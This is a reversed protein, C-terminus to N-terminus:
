LEVSSSCRSLDSGPRSSAQWSNFRKTMISTRDADERYQCFRITPRVLGSIKKRMRKQLLEDVRDVDKHDSEDLTPHVIVEVRGQEVVLGHRLLEVVEAKLALPLKELVQRAPSCRGLPRGFAHHGLCLVDEVDVRRRRCRVSEVVSWHQVSAVVTTPFPGLRAELAAATTRPHLRNSWKRGRVGVVEM